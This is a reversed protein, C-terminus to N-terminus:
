LCSIKIIVEGTKLDIHEPKQKKKVDLVVTYGRETLLDLAMNIAVKENFVPNNSRIIARGSLAQRKIIHVFENLIVRIVQDFLIDQRLQYNDLRKILEYRANLIVESALPIIRVREFTEDGLEM